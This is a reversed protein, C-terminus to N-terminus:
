GPLWRDNTPTVQPRQVRGTRQPHLSVVLAANDRDPPLAAQGRARDGGDLVV